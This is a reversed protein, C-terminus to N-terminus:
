QVFDLSYAQTVDFPQSLMGGELLLNYNFEFMAPDLAGKTGGMPDLLPLFVQMRAKQGALDLTSNYSVALEAAKGPNDVTDQLGQQFARMFAAVVEHQNKIM